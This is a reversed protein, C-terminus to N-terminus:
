LGSGYAKNNLGELTGNHIPMRFYSMLDKQHRRLMWAFERMPPLRSHTAWCFWKDLYRRAWGPRTYKWFERFAEELLYAPNIKLNLHELESVRTRKADFLPLLYLIANNGEHFDITRPRGLRKREPLMNKILAFEEDTL